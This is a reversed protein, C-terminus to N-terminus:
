SLFNINQIYISLTTDQSKSSAKEQKNKWINIWKEKEGCKDDFINGCSYLISLEYNPICFLLSLNYRTLHTDFTLTM